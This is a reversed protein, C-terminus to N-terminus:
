SEDADPLIRPGEATWTLPAVYMRCRVGRQAVVELDRQRFDVM